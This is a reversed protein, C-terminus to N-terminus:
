LIRACTKIAVQQQLLVRLDKQADDLTQISENHINIYQPDALTSIYFRLRPINTDIILQDLSTKVENIRRRIDKRTSKASTKLLEILQKLRKKQQIIDMNKELEFLDFYNNNNFNM